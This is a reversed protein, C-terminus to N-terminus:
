ETEEKIVSNNTLLKELADDYDKQWQTRNDIYENVEPYLTPINYDKYFRKPLKKESMVKKGVRHRISVYNKM